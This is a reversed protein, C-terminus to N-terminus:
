ASTVARPPSSDPTPCGVAALVRVCALRETALEGFVILEGRTDRADAGDDADHSAELAVAAHNISAPFLSACAPTHQRWTGASGQQPPVPRALSSPFIPKHARAAVAPSAHNSVRGLAYLLSQM